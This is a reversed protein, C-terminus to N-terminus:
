YLKIISDTITPLVFTLGSGGYTNGIINYLEIAQNIYKTVGDCLAFGAPAAAGAHWKYISGCPADLSFAPTCFPKMVFSGSVLIRVGGILIANVEAFAGTVERYVKQTATNFYFQDGFLSPATPQAHYPMDALIEISVFSLTSGTLLAFVLYQQGSTSATYDITASSTYSVATEKVGFSSFGQAFNLLLPTATGDITLVKAAFTGYNPAGGATIAGNLVSNRPGILRGTKLAEINNALRYAQRNATELQGNAVSDGLQRGQAFENDELLPIADYAATVTINAM